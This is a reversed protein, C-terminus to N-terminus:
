LGLQRFNYTRERSRWAGMWPGKTRLLSIDEWLNELAVLEISVARHTREEKLWGESGVECKM